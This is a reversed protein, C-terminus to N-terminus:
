IGSTLKMLTIHRDMLLAKVRSAFQEVWVPDEYLLTRLETDTLNADFGRIWIFTNPDDEALYSAVCTMGKSQQYPLIEEDFFKVFEAMKGQAIQYQRLEYRLATM